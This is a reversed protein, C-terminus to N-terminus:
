KIVLYLDERLCGGFKASLSGNRRWTMAIYGDHVKPNGSIPDQVLGVYINEAEKWLINKVPYGEITKTIMYAITYM